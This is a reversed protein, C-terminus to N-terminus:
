LRRGVCSFIFVLLHLSRLALQWLSREIYCHYYTNRAILSLLM